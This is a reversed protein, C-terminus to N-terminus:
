ESDLVSDAIRADLAEYLSNDIPGDVRLVQSHWAVPRREATWAGADLRAALREEPTTRISVENPSTLTDPRRFQIVLGSRLRRLDLGAKEFLGVLGANGMGQRGFVDALTEGSRLTDRTERIISPAQRPAAAVELRRWPWRGSLALLSAAALIVCALTVRVRRM